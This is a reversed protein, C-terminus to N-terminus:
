QFFGIGTRQGLNLAVSRNLENEEVSGPEVEVTSVNSRDVKGSARSQIGALTSYKRAFTDIQNVSALQVERLTVVVNLVTASRKDRTTALDQIVMNEYHRIATGIEFLEGVSMSSQLTGYLQSLRDVEVDPIPTDKDSDSLVVIGHGITLILTDNSKYSHDAIPAGSEVPHETIVLSSAHQENFIADFEILGISQAFLHAPKLENM